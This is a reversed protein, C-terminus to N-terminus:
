FEAEQVPQDVKRLDEAASPGQRPKQFYQQALQRRLMSARYLM